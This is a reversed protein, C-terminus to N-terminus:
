SGPQLGPTLLNLEQGESWARAGNAAARPRIALRHLGGDVVWSACISSLRSLGACAPTHAEGAMHSHLEAPLAAPVFSPGPLQDRVSVVVWCFAPELGAM